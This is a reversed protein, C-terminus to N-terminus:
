PRQNGVHHCRFVYRFFIAMQQRFDSGTLTYFVFTVSASLIEIFSNLKNLTDANQMLYSALDPISYMTIIVVVDPMAMFTYTTSMVVMLITVRRERRARADQAANSQQLSAREQKRKCCGWVGIIVAANMGTICLWLALNIMHGMIHSALYRDRRAVVELCALGSDFNRSIGGYHVQGSALLFGLIVCGAFM